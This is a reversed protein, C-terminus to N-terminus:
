YYNEQKKRKVATFRSDYKFNNERLLRLVRKEVRLQFSHALGIVKNRENM